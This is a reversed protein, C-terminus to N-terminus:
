SQVALRQLHEFFVQLSVDDTFIIDSGAAVDQVTNYTASPNLKALLFRAQSGHQDCVVLRPVPFRDKIILKAEEHPAELLLSFAKHEPENQYGMNRWQAITLGHFIVVSFYSDLLLIRDAAISAVDLLAPAPPASFSYAILSPQIMVVANTVNERNLLMRFYATEDPSNNFVQIFQSRRLNFMFEPFISISPNLIFSSPDDKRYDGFRSCLRILSRDLWRTADFGEEEEMKLSTLRAMVVAATEQDFGELLEEPNATSDVWKRAVTTVRLRQQGEPNQYNTQFQLYFQSNSTELSNLRESTPSIDFFVTLSTSRDLGCLKWATTNGQGIVTDACSSGKKELSTCPGIIGQIKIDKSCNVEFTGNFSLGLSQEGDEFIRKFSDKFVPHGFSEALVVLGGTKEVVVKMEAVGVQDLASAFLDLVHGQTVLQKSLNEYFKVAKYFHPAADKDLDKHSRIPESLEKSVITGPGETCPGGVLAIIRAGTGPLCAGVLGAAVNLAVGTCRLARHGTEVPWQDPQLEDLVLDLAYQCDSAPLLFRNISVVNNNNNLQHDISNGAAKPPVIGRQGFSSLGLQDLVEEKSFEKNGRFVYVKSLDSFGLEHVQVQTGFSIFGVLANDPLLTIAQKIASKVFELEENIICSDLVFLFVPCSPIQSPFSYEVTTFHPYLEAPLNIDSIMPSYHPPFQNRHFCFPCIWIKVSFDVRSFPNLICSCTKCRLPVYPLIQIDPHSKIPSISIAIPIIIKNADLKTTPWSNWTMRIGDIGGEGEMIGADMM